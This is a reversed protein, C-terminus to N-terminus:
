RRSRAFHHNAAIDTLLRGSDRHILHSNRITVTATVRASEIAAPKNLIGIRPGALLQWSCGPLKPGRCSRNPSVFQASAVQQKETDVALHRVDAQVETSLTENM